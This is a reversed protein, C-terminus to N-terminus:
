KQGKRYQEWMLVSAAVGANLSESGAEMPVIISGDCSRVASESIGHGENGVIVCDHPSPVSENIASSYADLTAALVRRGNKRLIGIAECLDDAVCINQRFLAGMAGRVTKPNYLDACDRSVVLLDVGFASASRLITGLNGPDRVSELLFIRKEDKKAYAGLVEMGGHIAPFPAVSIMGEPAREESLKDFVDDALIFVETNELREKREFILSLLRRSETERLYIYAIDHGCLVAESFLKVGDFRFFGAKVRHKREGLKGLFVVQKNQRSVITMDNVKM